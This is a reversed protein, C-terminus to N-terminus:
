CTNTSLNKGINMEDEEFFNIQAGRLFERRKRGFFTKRRKYLNMTLVKLPVQVLASINGTYKM